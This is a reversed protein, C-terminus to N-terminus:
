GREELGGGAVGVGLRGSGIRDDLTFSRFAFAVAVLMLVSAEFFPVGPLHWRADPGVCLGFSWAALIPAGITALSQLGSLSGQLAGQENPPVHRTVLSQVAPGTIGGFAGILVFCYVMWGATACGYALMAAATLLLGIILGRRDGTVAIIRKILGGQVVATVV